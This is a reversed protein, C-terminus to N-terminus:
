KLINWFITLYNKKHHLAANEADDSWAATVHDMMTSFLQAAKKKKKQFWSIKKWSENIFLFKFLVAHLISINELIAKDSKILCIM